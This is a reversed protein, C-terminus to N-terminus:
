VFSIEPSGINNQFTFGWEIQDKTMTKEHVEPLNLSKSSSSGNSESTKVPEDENDSEVIVIKITKEESESYGCNVISAICKCINVM